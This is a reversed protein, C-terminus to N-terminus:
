QKLATKILDETTADSGISKQAKRITKDAESLKYGLTLLAAVSDKFHRDVSSLQDEVLNTEESLSTTSHTQKPIGIYERMEIILREATKKGIGPCQSLTKLDKQLIAEKLLNLSLRSMINLAIKPGIGSVKHLLTKFFEVEERNYFGYLTQNDERYIPHVLLKVENSISPLKETTPIPCHIFYGIGQTEIIVSLPTKEILTGRVHHIM